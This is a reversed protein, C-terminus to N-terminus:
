LEIKNSTFHRNPSGPKHYRNHKLVMVAKKNFLGVKTGLYFDPTLYEGMSVLTDQLTEGEQVDFQDIGLMDTIWAAHGGAYSIAAGALM